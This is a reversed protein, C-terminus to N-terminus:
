IGRGRKAAKVIRAYLDSLVVEYVGCFLAEKDRFHHYLAGRTIRARKVVEETGANAYGMEAFLERAVALIAARTAEAQETKRSKRPATADIQM